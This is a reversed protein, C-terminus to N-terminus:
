ITVMKDMGRPGLSTRIASAVASVSVFLATLVKTESLMIRSIVSKKFLFYTNM